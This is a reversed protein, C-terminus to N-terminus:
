LKHIDVSIGSVGHGRFLELDNGIVEIEIGIDALAHEVRLAGNGDGQGDMAVVPADLGELAVAHLMMERHAGGLAAHAKM